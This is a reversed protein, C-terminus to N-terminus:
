RMENEKEWDKIISWVLELKDFTLDKKGMVHYKMWEIPIAEVTPANNIQEASYYRYCPVNTSTAAVLYDPKLKNRDILEM